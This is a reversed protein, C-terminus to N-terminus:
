YCLHRVTYLVDIQVVSGDPPQPIVQGNNHSQKGMM